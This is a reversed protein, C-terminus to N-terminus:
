PSGIADPRYLRDALAPPLGEPPPPPGGSEYAEPRGTGPSDALRAVMSENWGGATPSSSIAATASVIRDPHSVLPGFAASSSRRKASYMPASCASATEEPVAAMCRASTASPTPGPSSTIVVGIVHGAVAFTM